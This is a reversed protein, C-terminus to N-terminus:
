RARRRKEISMLLREVAERAKSDTDCENANLRELRAGEDLLFKLRRHAQQPSETHYLDGDIEVVTVIGDKFIVFDPEIRRPKQGVEDRGIVVSLPAFAVGAGKLAKYLFIEPQSRFLLYDFTRAAINKSHVRGQNTIGEGSLARQINRRWEPDPELTTTIETEIFDSQSLVNMPIVIASSIEKEIEERNQLELYTDVAIGIQLRWTDQGGNWNDHEWMRLSTKGNALISAAIINEERVLVKAATALVAEFQGDAFIAQDKAVGLLITSGIGDHPVAVTATQQKTTPPVPMQLGAEAALKEAAAGYSIGESAMLFQIANGHVGCGFCHYHDDYVYFSPTKEGHFPCCGKWQRGTRALRVRRGIVSPLQTQEILRDLFDQPLEM